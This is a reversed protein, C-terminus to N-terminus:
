IPVLRIVTMLPKRSADIIAMGSPMTMPRLLVTCAATFGSTCNNLGTDGSAQNGSTVMTTLASYTLSSGITDLDKRVEMNVTERHQRHGVSMFVATPTVETLWSRVLTDRTSRSLARLWTRLITSGDASGIINVPRRRLRPIAQITNIAASISACFGPSPFNTQSSNWFPLEWDRPRIMTATITM